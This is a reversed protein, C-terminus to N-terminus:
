HQPIAPPGSLPYSISAVATLLEGRQKMLLSATYVPAFGPTLFSGRPGMVQAPHWTPEM